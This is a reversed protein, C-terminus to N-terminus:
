KKKSKKKEEDQKKKEEKAKKEKYVKLAEFTKLYFDRMIAIFKEIDMKKLNLFKSIDEYQVTIADIKEGVFKITKSAHDYFGALFEETKDDEDMEDKKTDLMNKLAEVSKFKEKLSNYSENILTIQMKNFLEFFPMFNLIKRDVEEMIFEIIYQLLTSKNDKSKMDYFKTLSTLQFGFAGGKATVGNMYNGHALLIELYKHFNKNNKVFDFGKFFYDILGLVEVSKKSYSNKFRIAQLRQQNCSICGILVIFLDCEAFDEENELTETKKSIENYEAEKPFIPILLDCKEETLIEENYLLIADSIDIPKIKIKSLVIDINRQRDPEAFATKTKKEVVKKPPAKPKMEAKGFIECFEDPNFKIKTDDIKEWITGKINNANIKTWNLAKM